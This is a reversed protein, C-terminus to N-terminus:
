AAITNKDDDKEDESLVRFMRRRTRCTIKTREVHVIYKYM